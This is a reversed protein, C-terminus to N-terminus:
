IHMHHNFSAYRCIFCCRFLRFHCYQQLLLFFFFLSQASANFHYSAKNTMGATLWTPIKSRFTCHSSVSVTAFFFICFTKEAVNFHATYLSMESLNQPNPINLWVSLMIFESWHSKLYHNITTIHSHNYSSHHPPQHYAYTRHKM